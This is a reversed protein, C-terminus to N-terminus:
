AQQDRLHNWGDPRVFPAWNDTLFRLHDSLKSFTPRKHPELEWTSRMIKYIAESCGPPQPLRVGNDLLRRFEVPSVQGQAGRIGAMDLYPDEGFTMAEWLVVGFSWVDSKTTSFGFFSEPASWLLPVATTEPNGAVYSYVRRTLSSSAQGTTASLVQGTMQRTLGFDTIKCVLDRTVLINRAALDRHVMRKSELYKMGEAIGECMKCRRQGGSVIARGRLRRVYEKFSGQDVLEMIIFPLGQYESAMHVEVINPHKLNVAILSERLFSRRLRSSSRAGMNPVKVAVNLPPGYGLAPQDWKALWVDGFGGRGLVSTVKVGPIDPAPALM